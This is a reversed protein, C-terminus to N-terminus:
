GCDAVADSYSLECNRGRWHMNRTLGHRLIGGSQYDGPIRVTSDSSIGQNRHAATRGIAASIGLCGTSHGSAVTSAGRSPEGYEPHSQAREEGPRACVPETHANRYTQDCVPGNLRGRDDM